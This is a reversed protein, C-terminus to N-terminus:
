TLVIPLITPLPAMSKNWHSIAIKLHPCDEVGSSTTWQHVPSPICLTFYGSSPCTHKGLVNEVSLRSDTQGQMKGAGFSSACIKWCPEEKQLRSNYVDEVHGTALKRKPRTRATM